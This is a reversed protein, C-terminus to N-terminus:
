IKKQGIKILKRALAIEPPCGVGLTLLQHLQNRLNHPLEM